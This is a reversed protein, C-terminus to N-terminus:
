LSELLGSTFLNGLSLPLQHGAAFFLFRRPKISPTQHAHFDIAAIAAITAIV